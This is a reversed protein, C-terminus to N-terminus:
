QWWGKRLREMDDELREMRARMQAIWGMALVSLVAALSALVMAAIPDCAFTM